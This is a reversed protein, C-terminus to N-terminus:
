SRGVSSLALPVETNGDCCTEVSHDGTEVFHLYM